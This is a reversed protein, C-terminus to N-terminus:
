EWIEGNWKQMTGIKSIVLPLGNGDVAIRAPIEVDEIPLGVTNARTDVRYIKNDSKIIWARGQPGPGVDLGDALEM